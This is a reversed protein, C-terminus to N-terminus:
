LIKILDQNLCDTDTWAKRVVIKIYLLIIWLQLNITLQRITTKAIDNFIKLQYSDTVKGSMNLWSLLQEVLFTNRLIFYFYHNLKIYSNKIQKPTLANWIGSNWGTKMLAKPCILCVFCVCVYVRVGRVSLPFTPVGLKKPKTYNKTICKKHMIM